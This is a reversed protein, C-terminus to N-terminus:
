PTVLLGGLVATSGQATLLDGHCIMGHEIKQIPCPRRPVTAVRLFVTVSTSQAFKEYAARECMREILSTARHPDPRHENEVAIASPAPSVLSEGKM